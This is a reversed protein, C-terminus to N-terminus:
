DGIYEGDSLRLYMVRYDNTTSKYHFTLELIGDIYIINEVVQNLPVEKTLEFGQIRFVFLKSDIVVGPVSHVKRAFLYKGDDSVNFLTNKEFEKKPTIKGSKGDIVFLQPKKKGAAIILENMNLMFYLAKYRSAGYKTQSLPPIELDHLLTLDSRKYIKLKSKTRSLNHYFFLYPSYNMANLMPWDNKSTPMALKKLIIENDKIILTSHFSGKKKFRHLTFDLKKPDYEELNLGINYNQDNPAEFDFTQTATFRIPKGTKMAPKFKFKLAADLAVNDYVGKPESDIVFPNEVVGKENIEFQVKVHGHVMSIKSMGKPLKPSVRSVPVPPSDLGTEGKVSPLYFAFVLTLFIFYYKIM